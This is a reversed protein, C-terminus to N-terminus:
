SHLRVPLKKIGHVFHSRLRSVDGILEIDKVQRALEEFVIRMELRALNSGLCFHPGGGGFTLHPNPNRRIDFKYPDKFVTEDRNGSPYFM